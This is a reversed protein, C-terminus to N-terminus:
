LELAPSPVQHRLPRTHESLRNAVPRLLRQARACRRGSRPVGCQARVRLRKARLGTSLAYGARRGCGERSLGQVWRPRLDIRLWSARSLLFHSVPRRCKRHWHQYRHFRSPSDSIPVPRVTGSLTGSSVFDKSVKKTTWKQNRHESIALFGKMRKVPEVDVEPSANTPDEIRLVEPVEITDLDAPEEIFEPWVLYLRGNRMLPVLYDGTIDLEVEEWPTWRRDDEFTRYYYTHSTGKTRGFVHLTNLEDDHWTGAVELQAVDDLKSLYNLFATEATDRDIESQLLENELDEFFQSKDLRLEPEIWNEPYLFVKRQAEWVRYNKMWKWQTWADDDRADALVLPEIGMFARQVFLQAAGSAQVLRSTDLCASMEVDVIYYSCLDNEDDWKGSPSSPTTPTHHALLFAVLSDRKRERLNDQISQSFSLWQELDYKPSYGLKGFLTLVQYGLREPYFRANPTYLDVTNVRVYNNAPRSCDSSAATWNSMM